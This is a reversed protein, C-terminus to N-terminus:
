QKTGMWYRAEYALDIVGGYADILKKIAPFLRSKISDPLNHQYSFTNLLGIYAESGLSHQYREGYTQITGFLGSEMFEDEMTRSKQEMSIYQKANEQPILEQYLSNIQQQLPGVWEKYKSINIIITLTGGQQLLQAAKQFRIEPDLWHFATASVLADFSAIPAEFDEFPVTSFKVNSFKACHQQALETMSSSLDIAHIHAKGPALMRTLQGTGCGIELVKKDPSLQAEEIFHNVFARPYSPRYADYDPAVKTFTWKGQDTPLM